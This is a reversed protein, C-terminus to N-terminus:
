YRKEKLKIIALIVAIVFTLVGWIILDDYGTLLAIVVFTISVILLIIIAGIITVSFFTLLGAIGVFPAIYIGLEGARMLAPDEFMEGGSKVYLSQARIIIMLILLIVGFVIQLKSTMKTKHVVKKGGSQNIESSKPSNFVLNNQENNLFENCHKCKMAGELIYEHCFPCKKYHQNQEM